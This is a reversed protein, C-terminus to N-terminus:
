NQLENEWRLFLLYTIPFFICLLGFILLTIYFKDIKIKVVYKDGGIHRFNYYVQDNNDIIYYCGDLDVKIKNSRVRKTMIEGNGSSM